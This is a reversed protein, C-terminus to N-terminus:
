PLIIIPAIVQPVATSEFYHDVSLQDVFDSSLKKLYHVFEQKSLHMM